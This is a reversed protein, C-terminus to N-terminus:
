LQITRGSGAPLSEETRKSQDASSFLGSWFLTGARTNEPKNWWFSTGGPHPSCAWLLGTAAHESSRLRYWTFWEPRVHKSDLVLLQALVDRVAAGLSVVHTYGGDFIQDSIAPWRRLAEASPFQDWKENGPQPGPYYEIWNVFDALEYIREQDSLRGYKALARQATTGELVRSDPTM